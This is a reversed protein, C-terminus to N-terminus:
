AAVASDARQTMNPARGQASVAGSIEEVFRDIINEWDLREATIRAEQRLMQMRIPSRVIVSAMEAFGKADGFPVSIGNEMHRIHERAAAYDFAVVALGSAMAELTVNGFTETLSPYLFLDASAYHEALVKGTLMGTFRCDPHERALAARQPGDGVVVLRADPRHRQIREFADFLVKLNKEPALRGVHLVLPANGAVGLRFRLADSRLGPNFLGTDVGRGVVALNRFGRGALEDRLQATPVFTLNTRNHFHRLYATVARTLIGAGYHSAYGQFNTHFSSTVPIGLRRAMHLASWGLPGETVIHVGDPRELSWQRLLMAGAPLGLRVQPYNPLTLGDVLLHRALPCHPAGSEKSQRPRIIQLNMGRALLGGCFRAISHAVGNVEPPFTETVVSIFTSRATDQNKKDRTNM